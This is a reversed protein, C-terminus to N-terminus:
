KELRATGNQRCKEYARVNDRYVPRNPIRCTNAPWLIPLGDSDALSKKAQFNFVFAFRLFWFDLDRNKVVFVNGFSFKFIDFIFNYPTPGSVERM